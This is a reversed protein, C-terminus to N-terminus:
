PPWSSSSSYCILLSILLTFFLAFQMALLYLRYTGSLLAVRSGATSSSSCLADSALALRVWLLAVTVAPRM